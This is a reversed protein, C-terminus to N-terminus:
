PKPDDMPHEYYWALMEHADDRESKLKIALLTTTLAYGVLVAFMAVPLLENM